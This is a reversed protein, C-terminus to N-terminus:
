PRNGSRVFSLAKNPIFASASCIPSISPTMIYPRTTPTRPSITSIAPGIWAIDTPARITISVPTLRKIGQSTM